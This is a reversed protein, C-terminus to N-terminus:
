SKPPAGQQSGGLQTNVAIGAFPMDVYEITHGLNNFGAARPM